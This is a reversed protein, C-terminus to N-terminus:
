HGGLIRSVETEFMADYREAASFLENSKESRGLGENTLGVLRGRRANALIRLCDAAAGYVVARRYRSPLSDASQNSLTYLYYIKQDSSAPIPFCWIKGAMIEAHWGLAIQRTKLENIVADSNWYSGGGYDISEPIGGFENGRVYGLSDPEGFDPGWFIEVIKHDSPIDYSQQDAVCTISGLVMDQDSSGVSAYVRQTTDKLKETITADSLESPTPSGTETRVSTLLSGITLLTDAM